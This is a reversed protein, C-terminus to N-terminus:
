TGQEPCVAPDSKGEKPIFRPTGGGMGDWLGELHAWAGEENLCLVERFNVGLDM